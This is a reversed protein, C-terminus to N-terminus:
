RKLQLVMEGHCAATIRVGQVAAGGVTIAENVQANFMHRGSPDPLTCNQSSPLVNHKCQLWQCTVTLAAAARNGLRLM